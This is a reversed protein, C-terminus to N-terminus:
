RKERLWPKIILYGGFVALACELAMWQLLEPAKTAYRPYAHNLWELSAGYVPILMPSAKMLDASLEIWVKPDAAAAITQLPNQM